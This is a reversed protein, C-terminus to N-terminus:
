YYYYYSSDYSPTSAVGGILSLFFNALVSFVSFVASIILLVCSVISLILAATAIGSKTGAKKNKVVAVISLILAVLTCVSSLFTVIGFPNCICCVWPLAIGIISLVLAAVALGKGPAPTDVSAVFVPANDEAPAAEASVAQGCNPCFALNEDLEQNCSKCIM